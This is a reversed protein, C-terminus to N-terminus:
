PWVSHASHHVHFTLVVMAFHVVPHCRTSHHGVPHPSSVARRLALAQGSRPMRGHGPRAEVARNLSKPSKRSVKSARGSWPPGMSTGGHHLVFYEQRAYRVAARFLKGENTRIAEVKTHRAGANAALSCEGLCCYHKYRFAATRHAPTQEAHPNTRRHVGHHTPGRSSGGAWVLASARM